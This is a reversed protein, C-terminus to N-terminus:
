RLCLPPRLLPTKSYTREESHDLIHGTIELAHNLKMHLLPIIWWTKNTNQKRWIPLVESLSRSVASNSEWTHIFKNYNYYQIFIGRYLRPLMYLFCGTLDTLVEPLGLEERYSSSISISVKCLLLIRCSSTCIPLYHWDSLFIEFSIILLSPCPTDM